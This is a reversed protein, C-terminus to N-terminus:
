LTHAANSIRRTNFLSFTESEKPVRANYLNFFVSLIKNSDTLKEYDPVTDNDIVKFAGAYIIVRFRATRNSKDDGFVVVTCSQKGSQMEQHCQTRSYGDYEATIDREDVHARKACLRVCRKTLMALADEAIFGDTTGRLRLVVTDLSGMPQVNAAKAPM